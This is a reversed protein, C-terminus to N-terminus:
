PHKAAKEDQSRSDQCGPLRPLTGQDWVSLAEQSWVVSMGTSSCLTLRIESSGTNKRKQKSLAAEIKKVARGGDVSVSVDM